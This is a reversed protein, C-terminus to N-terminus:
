STTTQNEVNDDGNVSGPGFSVNANAISKSKGFDFGTVRGMLSLYAHFEHKGDPSRFVVQVEQEPAVANADALVPDKKNGYDEVLNDNTKAVAYQQWGSVAFGKSTAFEQATRLSAARDQYGAMMAPSEEDIELFIGGVYALPFLLFFLAWWTQSRKTLMAPPLLEELWAQTM